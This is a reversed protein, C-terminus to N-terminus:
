ASSDKLWKLKEYLLYGYVGSFGAILVPIVLTLVGFSMELYVLGAKEAFSAALSLPFSVLGSLFGIVFLRWFVGWWNGKVLEKSRKLAERGRKDEDILVYVAVSFWISFIIGPIIFLILGGFVALGALFSIWVYPAVKRLGYKLAASAEIPNQREKVLFLVSIVYALQFFVAVIMLLLSSLAVLMSVLALGSRQDIDGPAIFDALAPLFLTSIILLSFPIAALSAFKKFNARYIEWAEKLIEGAPPLIKPQTITQDM